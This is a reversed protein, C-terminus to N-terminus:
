GVPGGKRHGHERRQPFRFGCSIVVRGLQQGVERECGSSPILRAGNEDHRAPGSEGAACKRRRDTGQAAGGGQQRGALLAQFGRRQEDLAECERAPDVVCHCGAIPRQSLQGVGTRGTGSDRDVQLESVGRYVRRAPGVGAPLQRHDGVQQSGPRVGGEARLRVHEVGLNRQGICVNRSGQPQGLVGQRLCRRARLDATVRKLQKAPQIATRVQVGGPVLKSRASDVACAAPRATQRSRASCSSPVRSM